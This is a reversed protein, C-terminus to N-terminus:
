SKAGGRNWTSGMDSSDVGRWPERPQSARMPKERAVAAGPSARAEPVLGPLELELEPLRVALVPEEAVTVVAM